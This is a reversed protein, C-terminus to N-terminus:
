TDCWFKDFIHAEFDLHLCVHMCVCKSVRMCQVLNRHLKKANQLAHVCAYRCVYVHMCTWVYQVSKRMHKKANSQMGVHMRVYACLYM